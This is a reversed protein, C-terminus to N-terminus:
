PSRWRRVASQEDQFHMGAASIFRSKSSYKLPPNFNPMRHDRFASVPENHEATEGVRAHHLADMEVKEGLPMTELNAQGILYVLGPGPASM